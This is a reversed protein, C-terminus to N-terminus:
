EMKIKQIRSVPVVPAQADGSAGGPARTVTERAISPGPYLYESKTTIMLVRVGM